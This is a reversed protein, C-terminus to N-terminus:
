PRPLAAAHRRIRGNGSPELSAAFKLRDPQDRRCV